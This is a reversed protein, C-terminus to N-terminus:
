LQLPAVPHRKFPYNKLYTYGLNAKLGRCIMEKPTEINAKKLLEAYLMKAAEINDAKSYLSALHLKLPLSTINFTLQQEIVSIARDLQRNGEYALALNYHHGEKQPEIIILKEYARIADEYKAAKLSASAFATLYQKKEEKEVAKQLFEYAKDYKEISFYALGINYLISPAESDLQYAKKYSELAKKANGSSFYALGLKNFYKPTNPALVVAKVLNTIAAKYNGTDMAASSLIDYIQVDEPNLSIMKEELRFIEEYKKQKIYAICLSKYADLYDIRKEILKVLLNEAEAFKSNNINIIGLYYLAVTNNEDISLVTSFNTKAENICNLNINCLGLLKHLDIRDSYTKLLQCLIEKAKKFEKNKILEEIENIKM